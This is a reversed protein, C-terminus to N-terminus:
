VNENACVLIDAVGIGEPRDMGSASAWVCVGEMCSKHQVCASRIVDEGPIDGNDSPSQRANRFIDFWSFARATTSRVKLAKMCPGPFIKYPLTEYRNALSQMKVANVWILRYM